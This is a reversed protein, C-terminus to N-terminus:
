ANPLFLRKQYESPAHKKLFEMRVKYNLHKKFKGSKYSEWAHHCDSCSLSWNLPDWILETLGLEKCRKQSITHDHAQARNKGCCECKNYIPQPNKAYPLINLLHAFILFSFCLTSTKSKNPKRLKKNPNKKFEQVFVGGVWHGAAKKKEQKEPKPWAKM